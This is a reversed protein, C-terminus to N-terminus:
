RQTSSSQRSAFVKLHIGRSRRNANSSRTSLRAKGAATRKADSNGIKMGMVGLPILSPCTNHQTCHINDISHAALGQFFRASFHSVTHLLDLASSGGMPAKSKWSACGAMGLGCSWRHTPPRAALGPLVVRWGDLGALRRRGSLYQCALRIWRERRCTWACRGTRQFGLKQAAMPLYSGKLLVGPPLRLWRDPM